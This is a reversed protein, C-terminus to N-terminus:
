RSIHFRMGEFYLRPQHKMSKKICSSVFEGSSIDRFTRGLAAIAVMPTIDYDTSTTNGTKALETFARAIARAERTPQLIGQSTVGFLYYGQSGNKQAAQHWARKPIFGITSENKPPLYDNLVTEITADDCRLIASLAGEGLRHQQVYQLRIPREAHVSAPIDREGRGRASSLDERIEAMWAEVVPISDPHLPRYIEITGPVVHLM